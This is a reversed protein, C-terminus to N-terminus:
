NTNLIHHRVRMLVEGGTGGLGIYLTPYTKTNEVLNLIKQPKVNNSDSM